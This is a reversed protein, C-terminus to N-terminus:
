YSQRNDEKRKAAQEQDNGLEDVSLVHLTVGRLCVSKQHKAYEKEQGSEVLSANGIVRPAAVFSIRVRPNRSVLRGIFSFMKSAALIYPKVKKGVEKCWEISGTTVMGSNPMNRTMTATTDENELLSSCLVQM